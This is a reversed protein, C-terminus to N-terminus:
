YNIAITEEEDELLLPPAEPSGSALYDEYPDGPQGTDDIRVTQVGEASQVLHQLEADVFLLRAGSHAAIHAVEPPTLRTNIPVLVCGAAPVAFHAELLAPINPALVAGRERQRPGADRPPNALRHVREEFERYTYRRDGHVVATKEPFVYASRRLFSLPMLETRYVKASTIETSM